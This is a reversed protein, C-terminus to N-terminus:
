LTSFVPYIFFIYVRTGMWRMWSFVNHFHLQLCSHWNWAMQLFIPKALIVVHCINLFCPEECTYCETPMSISVQSWLCTMHKNIPHKLVFCSVVIIAFLYNETIFSIKMKIPIHECAFSDCRLCHFNLLFKHVDDAIHWQSQAMNITFSASWINATTPM